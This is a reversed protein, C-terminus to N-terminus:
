REISGPGESRHSRDGAAPSFGLSQQTERANSGPANTQGPESTLAVPAAGGDHNRSEARRGDTAGWERNAEISRKARNTHISAGDPPDEVSFACRLVARLLTESDVDALAGNEVKRWAVHARLARFVDDWSAPESPGRKGAERPAPSTRGWNGVNLLYGTMPGSGPRGAPPLFGASARIRRFGKPADIPTQDAKSSVIGIESALKVLYSAFASKSAITEAWVRFGFGSRIAAPGLFRSRWAAPFMRLRGTAPDRVARAAGYSEVWNRVNPGGIVLNCHPWRTKTFAEWTQVYCMPGANSRLLEREFERRLKRDWCRGMAQFAEFPDRWRSPDVTLVVYLWWQSKKLAAAIRAFDVMNRWQACRRCRWSGCLFPVRRPEVDSAVIVDGTEEVRLAARPWLILRWAEIECARISRYVAAGPRPRWSDAFGGLAWDEPPGFDVM